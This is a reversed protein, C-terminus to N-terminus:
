KIASYMPFMFALPGFTVITALGIGVWAVFAMRAARQPKSVGAAVGHCVPALVLLSVAVPTAPSLCVDLFRGQRAHMDAFIRILAPQVHLVMEMTWAVM